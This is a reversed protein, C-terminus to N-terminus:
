DYESDSDSDYECSEWQGISHNEVSYYNSNEVDYESDCKIESIYKNIEKYKEESIYKNIEKYKEENYNDTYSERLCNNVIFKHKNVCNYHNDDSLLKVEKLMDILNAHENSIIKSEEIDLEYVETLTENKNKYKSVTWEHFYEKQIHENNKISISDNKEKKISISDNKEKKISISDNKEKKIQRM